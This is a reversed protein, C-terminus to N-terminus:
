PQLVQQGLILAIVEAKPDDGDRAEEIAEDSAGAVAARKRLEPLKLQNLETQLATGSSPLTPVAPPIAIAVHDLGALTPTPAPASTAAWAPAPDEANKKSNKHTVHAVVGCIGIIVLAIIIAVGVGGGGDDYMYEYEDPM